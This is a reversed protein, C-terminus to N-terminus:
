MVTGDRCSELWSLENPQLEAARKNIFGQVVSRVGPHHLHGLGHLAYSKARDDDLKLIEVLTGFMADVPKRHQEGLLNYDEEPLKRDYTQTLWFSSCIHDWWMYFCGVLVQVDCQAVFDAFVKYMARICHIRDDLDLSENWLVSQLEFHAQSFMATIGRDLTDLSLRDALQRFEVFFKTLYQLMRERRTLEHLAFQEGSLDSDWSEGAPKTFFYDIFLEYSLMSLDFINPEM